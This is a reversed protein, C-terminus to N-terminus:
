RILLLTLDNVNTGTAGTKILAGGAQLAHYADNDMLSAGPSVGAKRMRACTEGTVVGGAADTPGDTGDSGVSLVCANEMGEIGMAASLALEQNRGGLGGGQVHVVTEGGLLIACPKVFPRNHQRIERAISALFAGADRAECNLTTTLIHPAFGQEAAARAAAECLAGVNGAIVTEVAGQAKPTEVSLAAKAGDSLRLGYKAAIEAADACSSADPHAVGSAIDSPSDGLVDSLVISLVRAPRCKEAFRGGKVASLHKRICNIERIDAGCALLQRTVEAIDALTVGPLPLEFLASGGGSILLLVTDEPTLGQVAEMAARAGLLANEDPVPHGAEIVRVREIEGMSHAYKTVVVGRRLRGGLVDAAARAMRWGAKGIAILVADGIIPRSRLAREVAAEPLVADIAERAIGRAITELAEGM